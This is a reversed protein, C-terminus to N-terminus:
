CESSSGNNKLFCCLAAVVVCVYMVIIVMQIIVSALSFAYVKQPNCGLEDDSVNHILQHCDRCTFVLDAGYVFWAFAFLATANELLKQFQSKDKENRNMYALFLVFMYTAGSVIMWVPLMPQSPCDDLHEVGYDILLVNWAFIAIILCLCIMLTCIARSTAETTSM